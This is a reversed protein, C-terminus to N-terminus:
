YLFSSVIYAIVSILRNYLNIKGGVGLESRLKTCNSTKMHLPRGLFLCKSKPNKGAKLENVTSNYKEIQKNVM